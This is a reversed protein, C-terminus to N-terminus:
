ASTSPSTFRSLVRFLSLLKCIVCSAVRYATANNTHNNRLRVIKEYLQLVYALQSVSAINGTTSLAM